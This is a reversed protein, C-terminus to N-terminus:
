INHDSGVPQDDTSYQILFYIVLFFIVYFATGIQEEITPETLFSSIVIINFVVFLWHRWSRKYLIAVVLIVVFAILGFIGCGAAFVLFENHPLFYYQPLVDPFDKAYLANMDDRLNGIGVGTLWHERFLKYGVIESEIRAGDSMHNVQHQETFMSLGYRTYDIKSQLTPFIKVAVIPLIIISMLLIGGM